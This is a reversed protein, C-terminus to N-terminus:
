PKTVYDDAAIELGMVRDAEDRKGSVIIVPLTAREGRIQRALSMGDEGALRLDLLVLDVGSDALVQMMERGSSAVSVRLENEGLYEAMMARLAPDDDVVLIHPLSTM